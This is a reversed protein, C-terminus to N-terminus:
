RRLLLNVFTNSIINVILEPLVSHTLGIRSTWDDRLIIDVNQIMELAFLGIIAIPLLPSGFVGLAVGHLVLAISICGRTVDGYYYNQLHMQVDPPAQREGVHSLLRVKGEHSFLYGILPTASLVACGRHTVDEFRGLTTAM